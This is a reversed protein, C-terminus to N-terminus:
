RKGSKIELDKVKERLEKIRFERGVFLKNMRELQKNKQEIETTREKVLEELHKRHKDLEEQMEVDRTVDRLISIMGSIKGDSDHVSSSVVEGIFSGGKSDIMNYDNSGPQKGSIIEQVNRKARNHDVQDIWDLVHTGIIKEASTKFLKEMNPSVFSIVGDQKAFTIADPNANVLSQYMARSERLAKEAEKRKTIDTLAGVISVTKGNKVLPAERVEVWVKRGSKQVLELEYTDQPKGTEIAKMTKRFGLENVPHDSAVETWKIKLEEPSYGLVKKSQPSVYTIMHDPTHSYFMNTSHEIINRLKEESEKLNKLAFHKETIDEFVVCFRNQSEWPRYVNCHYLKNTPAHFLDFIQTEGTVATHGYRKIWEPETEPWVEHVTKGKVDEHKVGTIQEYADNIYVFRYSVFNGKEDFVSDFIVFANLMSKLIWEREDLSQKLKNEAEIQKTIDRHIGLFLLPNGKEDRYLITGVSSIWVYHGKKHKMRFVVGYADTEGQLYAKLLKDVNPRDEPHIQDIWWQGSYEKMRTSYGLMKLAVADMRFKGTALNWEWVGEGASELALKLKEESEKLAMEAKKRDSIDVHTGVMRVAKGESNFAAEARSLVDVWHGKKHKMKFEMEFRERKGSIHEELRKWSEKVDAPHTLDEWVSFDDPLEDERYGLMSKWRPSYYITNTEINWDFLGDNAAKMALNFREDSEMLAKEFNVREVIEGILQASTALREKAVDIIFAPRTEYSESKTKLSEFSVKYKEAIRKLAADERPPDGYGFNISGIVEKNAYIPIAYIHLGGACEIDVAKKKEMCQLSADQWCSEHCHWKGSDLAKKNSCGKCLNRSAEDLFSCWDSSFIGVAYDGNTEYVAASTELLDLYDSVIENLMEEGVADLITRKTNLKSLDGYAPINPKKRNSKPNLLWEIKKLEQEALHKETIDEGSSLTGTIRGKADRLQSNHWAIWRKEGNHSVVYNEVYELQDLKGQMIERFVQKVERINDKPLFHDFWNKGIIDEVNRGLVEAARKNALTVKGNDDIMIFMVGAIDLYHQARNKEDELKKNTELIIENREVLEENQTQLEENQAAIEENKRQIIQSAEKQDTIDRWVTYISKPSTGPLFTLAVDIWREEQNKDIHIWEFRHYGKQIAKQIMSISKKESSMGDAQMAPSIEWPMKGKIEAEKQMGLFDLAAKNAQVFSNGQIILCPDTSEEFLLRYKEESRLVKENLEELEENTQRLEENITQFEQNQQDLKINQQRIELNKEQIKEEAVKRETIVQFYVAIGGNSPYIRVEYWNAYPEEGFFTEFSRFSKNELAKRYEKEFVSGKAEPFADFIMEGQVDKWKRGLMGEAAKNFYRFKLEKDLAFFGDSISSLIEGRQESLRSIEQEKAVRDSVDRSVGIIAKLDGHEDLVPTNSVHAIFARKNKDRVKFDGAWSNGKLLSSMIENAQERSTTSPTLKVIDKGLAENESWGYLEEASKSWYIVKGKSDTVIVAEELSELMKAQFFIRENKATEETIDKITLLIEDYAGIQHQKVNIRAMIQGGEPLKLQANFECPEKDKLTKQLYLYGKQHDEEHFLADFKQSIFSSRDRRLIQIATLNVNTIRLSRDLTFIGHTSFEFLDNFKKREIRQEEEAKVLEENQLDLEIQYVNLEEILHELDDAYKQINDADKRKQYLEEARKRLQNTKSSPM